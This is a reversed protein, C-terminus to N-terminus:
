SNQRRTFVMSTARMCDLIQQRGKKKQGISSILASGKLFSFEQKQMTIYEEVLTQLHTESYTIQIPAM